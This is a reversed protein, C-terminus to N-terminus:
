IWGKRRAYVASGVLIIMGSLVQLFALTLNKQGRAAVVRTAEPSAASEPLAGGEGEWRAVDLHYYKAM